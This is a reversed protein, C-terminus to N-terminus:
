WPLAAFVCFGLIPVAQLTAFFFDLENELVFFDVLAWYPKCLITKDTYQDCALGSVSNERRRM